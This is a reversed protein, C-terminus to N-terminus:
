GASDAGQEEVLRARASLMDHWAERKLASQRLLYAPHFVAMAPIGPSEPGAWPDRYVLWRGRLRTIGEATGLLTAAATGGVLVLVRPAVLGIHRQIFPLCATCEASTPKRNGPPRWPLINTIYVSERSLGIAAIMRDLLRGSVGVFPVGERDEDAGPAEGIFMLDAGTNGDGFVLNTATHKLACGEFRVLAARLEALDRCAAALTQANAAAAEPSELDLPVTIPAARRSPAASRDGSSPRAPSAPREAERDSRYRDVPHEDIAEDAGAEVHWRLLAHVQADDSPSGSM